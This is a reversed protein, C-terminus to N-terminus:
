TQKRGNWEGRELVAVGLATLREIEADLAEVSPPRHLIAFIGDGHKKLFEGYVGGSELPQIWDVFLDGLWGSVVRQNTTSSEARQRVKLLGTKTWADTVRNVDGVVWAVRDVTKYFEPLQAAAPVAALIVTLLKHM